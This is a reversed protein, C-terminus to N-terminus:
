LEEKARYPRLLMFAFAAFLLVAFVTGINAGGGTFLKGFQYVCLAIIYAFGTQYGVAVLTWKLSKMEQAIAGVAAMCPICLLNFILFSLASFPTFDSRILGWVDSLSETDSSSGYIVGFIGAVNEKAILGSVTAVTTKWNGWGLPKFIPAIFRGIYALLSEETEVMGFGGSSFGFQSLFWFVACALFIITGAKKIFSWSREWTHTLVNRAGPLHYTPLEMVFPAPKGAFNKLKKLIVGSCVIAAIGTFYALPAVWAAGGFIAGSILAIIPLKASCPIFTTTIITIRRDRENEITRSAMIGPVGCGTGILMPIFSKGSLGFRRFLRDLIFAIRAMYGCDELISLMLFLVMIQPVFGLVAGLGGVIGDLILSQLWPAAGASELGKGILTPISWSESGFVSENVFDTLFGGISSVSIYYVIFMVAAFIPLALFKNTVIRDIKDSLSFTDPNINEYSLGVVQSIYAYRENRIISGIDKGLKKELDASLSELADKQSQNLAKYQETEYDRELFKYIFFDLQSSKITHPALNIVATAQEAALELQPSYEFRKAYKFPKGAIEIAKQAAAIVGLEKTATLEVVPCGFLESLKATDIKDGRRNVIDMMNLALVAPIGLELIQTTLFLNRELNGADIIIIIADPQENILYNRTVVEELTYPSLSYIGPLDTIIVDKQGKLRGEKKEVTVGPWNGVYQSNGTLANFVTTKGSNPNGALAIRISM